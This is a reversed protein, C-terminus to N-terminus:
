GEPPADEKPDAKDAESAGETDGESDDALLEERVAVTEEISIEDEDITGDHNADVGTVTITDIVDPVGDGDLDYATVTRQQLIDAVGDGDVDVVVTTVEQVVDAVGDGDVDVIDTEVTGAVQPSDNQESM